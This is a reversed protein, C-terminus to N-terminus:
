YISEIFRWDEDLEARSLNANEKRESWIVQIAGVAYDRKKFFEVYNRLKAERSGSMGGLVEELEQLDLEMMLFQGPSLWACLAGASGHFNRYATRRHNALVFHASLTAAYSVNM